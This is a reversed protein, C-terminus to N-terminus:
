SAFSQQSAGKVKWARRQEPDTALLLCAVVPLGIKSPHNPPGSCFEVSLAAADAAASLLSFQQLAATSSSSNSARVKPEIKLTVKRLSKM